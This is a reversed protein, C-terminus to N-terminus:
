GEVTPYSSLDVIKVTNDGTTVYAKSGDASLAIGAPSPGVPIAHGVVTKSATDIVSIDDTGKNVVYAYKGDKSFAIAVPNTGVPINYSSYSYPRDTLAIASVNNSGSNAVYATKGDPSLTVAVPTTGVHVNFYGRDDPNRTGENAILTMSRDLSNATYVAYSGQGNLVPNPGVAVAVPHSNRFLASFDNRPWSKHLDYTQGQRASKPGLYLTIVDDGRANAVYATWAIDPLPSKTPNFAIGMPQSNLKGVRITKSVTNTSRDIVAVSGFKLRRFDPALSVAVLSGDPAVSVARPKQGVPIRSEANTALVILSVSNEGSNAVYAYRGDPTITISTPNAGV